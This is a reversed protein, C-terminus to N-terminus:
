PCKLVVVAGYKEEGDDRHFISSGAYISQSNVKAVTVWVRRGDERLVLEDGQVVDTLRAVRTNISYDIEM